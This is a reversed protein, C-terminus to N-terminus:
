TLQLQISSSIINMIFDSISNSNTSYQISNTVRTLAQHSDSKCGHCSAPIFLIPEQNTDIDFLKFQLLHTSRALEPMVDRAQRIHQKM